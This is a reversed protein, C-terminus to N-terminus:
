LSCLPGKGNSGSRMQASVACAMAESGRVRELAVVPRWTATSPDLSAASANRRMRRNGRGAAATPFDRKKPAALAFAESWGVTLILYASVIPRDTRIITSRGVLLYVQETAGSMEVEGNAAVAGGAPMFPPLVMIVLIASIVSRVFGHQTTRVISM